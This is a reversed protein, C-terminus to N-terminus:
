QRGVGIELMDVLHDAIIAGSTIGQRGDFFLMLRM